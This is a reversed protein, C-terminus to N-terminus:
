IMVRFHDLARAALEPDGSVSVQERWPRHWLRLAAANAYILRPGPDGDPDAGDHALVVTDLAFLDQALHEPPGPLLLPQNFGAAHGAVLRAAIAQVEPTLWPAPRVTPQDTTAMVQATPAATPVM